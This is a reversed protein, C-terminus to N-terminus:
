AKGKLTNAAARRALMREKRQEDTPTVWGHWGTEPRWQQYHDNKAIGCWRCGDPTPASDPTTDAAQEILDM